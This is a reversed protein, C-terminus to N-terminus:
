VGASAALVKCGDKLQAKQSNMIRAYGQANEQRQFARINSATEVSWVKPGSPFLRSRGHTIISSGIIECKM